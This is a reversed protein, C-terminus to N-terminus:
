RPVEIVVPCQISSTNTPPVEAQSWDQAFVGQLTNIADSDRVFIGLERALDISNVSFNISGVYAESQDVLIMKAHMYPSSSSSPTPMVRADAGALNLKQLFPINLFPDPNLDCLPVILKIKVGRKAAAAFANLIDPDGLNEVVSIISYQASNILGVLKADSSVPSWLLDPNSVAPTVGKNTKANILDADFVKTIEAVVAPDESIVGFDRMNQANNTLNMTMVFAKQNDVVFAKEHTISFKTTSKVASVGGATLQDFIAQNKVNKLSSQDMIVQISVGRQKAAILSSVIKTNTLHYITMKISSHANDIADVVPNLNDPSPTFFLSVGQARYPYVASGQAAFLVLGM